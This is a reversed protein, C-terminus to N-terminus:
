MLTTNIALRHNRFRKNRLVRAFLAQESVAKKASTSLFFRKSTVEQSLITYQKIEQQNQHKKLLNNYKASCLSFIYAANLYPFRKTIYHKKMKRVLKHSRRSGDLMNANATSNDSRATLDQLLGKM